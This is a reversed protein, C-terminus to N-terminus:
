PMPPWSISMPDKQVNPLDRLTQIYSLVPAIDPESLDSGLAEEDNHREIRWRVEYIRRDREARVEDWERSLVGQKTALMSAPDIGMNTANIQTVFGRGPYGLDSLDACNTENLGTASGWVSPIETVADIAVKNEFDCLFYITKM